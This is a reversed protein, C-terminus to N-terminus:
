FDTIVFIDVGIFGGSFLFFENYYFRAHYLIVFIISYGRLADIDSRYFNRM